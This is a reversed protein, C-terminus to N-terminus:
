IEKEGLVTITGIDSRSPEDPFCTIVLRLVRVKKPSLLGWCREIPREITGILTISHFPTLIEDIESARVSVAGLKQFVFPLWVSKNRMAWLARRFDDVFPASTVEDNWVAREETM